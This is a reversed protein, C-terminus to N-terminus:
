HVVGCIVHSCALLGGCAACICISCPRKLICIRSQFYRLQAGRGSFSMRFVHLFGSATMLGSPCSLIFLAPPGVQLTEQEFAKFLAPQFRAQLGYSYFRFLCEKGYQYGAAADDAAYQRFEDYMSPTPHDRLYYSWFRYLTNMEESKGVGACDAM